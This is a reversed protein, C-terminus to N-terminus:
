REEWMNNVRKLGYESEGAQKAALRRMGRTNEEINLMFNIFQGSAFLSLSSLLGLFLIRLAVLVTITGFLETLMATVETEASAQLMGVSIAMLVLFVIVVSIATLISLLKLVVSFMELAWYRGM